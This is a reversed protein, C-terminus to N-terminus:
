EAKEVFWTFVKGRSDPDWGAGLAERVGTEVIKPTIKLKEPIHWKGNPKV